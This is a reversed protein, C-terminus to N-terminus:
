VLPAEMIRRVGTPARTTIAIPLISPKPAAIPFTLRSWFALPSCVADDMIAPLDAADTSRGVLEQAPTLLLSSRARAVCLWATAASVCADPLLGFMQMMQPSSMPWDFM